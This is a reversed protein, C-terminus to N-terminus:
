ASFATLCSAGLRAEEQAGWAPECPAAFEVAVPPIGNAEGEAATDSSRRRTGASCVQGRSGRRPGFGPWQMVRVTSVGARGPAVVREMRAGVSRKWHAIGGRLRWPTSPDRRLMGTPTVGKPIWLGLAAGGGVNSVAAGSHAWVRRMNVGVWVWASSLAGGSCNPRRRTGASCVQGRSGWEPDLAWNGCTQLDAWRLSRRPGGSAADSETRAGVM